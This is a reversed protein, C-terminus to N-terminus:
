TPTRFGCDLSRQYRVNRSMTIVYVSLWRERLKLVEDMTADTSANNLFVLDVSYRKALIEMVPLMRAFFLPVVSEENYLPCLICLKLMIGESQSVNQRGFEGCNPPVLYNENTM